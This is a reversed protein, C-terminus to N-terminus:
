VMSHWSRYGDSLNEVTVSTSTCPLHALNCQVYMTTGIASTTTELFLEGHITCSICVKLKGVSRALLIISPDPHPYMYMTLALNDNTPKRTTCLLVTCSECSANTIQYVAMDISAPWPLIASCIHLCPIMLFGTTGMISYTLSMYLAM